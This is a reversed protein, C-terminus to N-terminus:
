CENMFVGINSNKSEAIEVDGYLAAAEGVAVASSKRLGTINGDGASDHHVPYQHKEEGFDAM